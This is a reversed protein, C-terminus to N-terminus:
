GTNEAEGVYTNDAEKWKGTNEYTRSFAERCKSCQQLIDRQLEKLDKGAPVAAAKKELSQLLVLITELPIGAEAFNQRYERLLTEMSQLLTLQLWIGDGTDQPDEEELIEQMAKLVKECERNGPETISDRDFLYLSYFECLQMYNRVRNEELTKKDSNETRGFYELSKEFFPQARVVRSRFSGHDGTYSFLYLQGIKFCIEAYAAAEASGETQFEEYLRQLHTGKEETLVGERSCIEMFDLIEQRSDQATESDTEPGTKPITEALVAPQKSMSNFVAAMIELAILLSLFVIRKGQIGDPKMLKPSTKQRRRSKGEPKRRNLFVIRKSQVPKKRLDRMLERCSGYRDKPSFALCRNLVADFKESIDPRLKRFPHTKYLYPDHEPPCGTLLEAATMGLSYIDSRIDTQANGYQEPPAYGRTGLAMTDQNRGHKYERAIGLDLLILTGDPKRIVNAPKMDRYIVPPDQEHLYALVMALRYMWDRVVDEGFPGARKLLASLSEGEIYDMVLFLRGNEELVDVIRPLSPHDLRKMLEVEELLSENGAGSDTDGEASYKDKEMVKIAWRKGLHLDTALYVVSAGGRGLESEIRYRGVSTGTLIEDPENWGNVM